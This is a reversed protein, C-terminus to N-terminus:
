GGPLQRAPRAAQQVRAPQPMQVVRKFPARTLAAFRQPEARLSLTVATAAIALVVILGLSINLQRRASRPDVSRTFGPEEVREFHDLIAM